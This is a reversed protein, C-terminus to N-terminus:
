IDFEPFLGVLPNNEEQGRGGVGPQEPLGM